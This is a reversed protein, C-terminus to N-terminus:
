KMAGKVLEAVLMTIVGAAGGYVAVKVKLNSLENAHHQQASETASVRNNIEVFRRDIDNELRDLRDNVTAASERIAVQQSRLAELIAQQTAEISGVSHFLKHEQEPTM